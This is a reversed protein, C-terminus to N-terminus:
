VEKNDWLLGSRSSGGQLPLPTAAGAACLERFKQLRAEGLVAAAHCHPSMIPAHNRRPELPAGLWTGDTVPIGAPDKSGSCM